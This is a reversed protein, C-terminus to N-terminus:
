AGANKASRASLQSRTRARTNFWLWGVIVLAVLVIPLLLVGEDKRFVDAAVAASLGIVVLYLVGSNSRKIRFSIRRM